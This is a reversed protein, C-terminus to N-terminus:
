CMIDLYPRVRTRLGPELTAIYDAVVPHEADNAHVTNATAQMGPLHDPGLDDGIYWGLLGPTGAIRLYAELDATKWPVVGAGGFGFYPVVEIGRRRFATVHERLQAPGEASPGIGRFDTNLGYWCLEEATTRGDSWTGLPFFPRGDVTLKGGKLEVGASTPSALWLACLILGLCGVVRRSM